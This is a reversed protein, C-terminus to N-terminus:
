NRVFTVKDIEKLAENSAQVEIGQRVKYEIVM